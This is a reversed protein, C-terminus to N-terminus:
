KGAQTREKRSQYVIFSLYVVIATNVILLSVRPWTVKRVVEFIEIPVYIGGAALGFWEAWRRQLWLGYAEVFRVVAYCLASLALVWLQTDTVRDALDLFIQPYRNAPNLHFHRVLQEVALHLDKHIYALLGFGALLVLLGKAAEFLSVVRLGDKKFEREMSNELESLRSYHHRYDGAPASTLV